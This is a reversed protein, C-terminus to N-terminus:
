NKPPAVSHRQPDAAVTFGNHMELVISLNIHVM